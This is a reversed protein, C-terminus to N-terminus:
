ARRVKERAEKAEARIRAKLEKAERKIQEAQEIAKQKQEALRAKEEKARERRRESKWARYPRTLILGLLVSTAAPWFGALDGPGGDGTLPSTKRLRVLINDRTAVNIEGDDLLLPDIGMMSAAKGADVLVARILPARVSEDHVPQAVAAWWGNPLWVEVQPNALINQYWDSEPGFGTMCYIDGGVETYNLPTKYVSGSKRGTHVLMLQKGAVKPFRNLFKGLGLRWLLIVGRNLNKFADREIPDQEQM